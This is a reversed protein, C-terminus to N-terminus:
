FKVSLGIAWALDATRSNLGKYLATDIQVDKTLLYAAGIDFTAVTGGHNSRAIQPVAVEVFTRLRDTWSQGLVIGFIGSYFRDGQADKEYTIGPMVGLGMDYPLDWEAVLRLSPRHDNGRFPKTGSNTDIHALVGVSPRYEAADFAHWKAGISLDSYGRDSSRMGDNLDRARYVTHGDTELRLEWTESVGYRLLTPTTTTRERLGSARNREIAIATEIQFRGQGVVDSSEVFDPRDTVIDDEAYTMHCGLSLTAVTLVKALDIAKFGPNNLARKM